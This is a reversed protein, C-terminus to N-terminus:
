LLAKCSANELIIMATAHSNTHTLSIWCKPTYDLNLNMLKWDITLEPAGSKLKKIAIHRCITLFPIGNDPAIQTLAKFFAERAAFRAAFREASKCPVSLCYDIEEPTFIKLLNKQSYNEWEKFREIEVSDIGIGKIM